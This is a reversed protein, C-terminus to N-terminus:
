QHWHQPIDENATTGHAMEGNADVKNAKHGDIGPADVVDPAERESISPSDEDMDKTAEHGDKIGSCTMNLTNNEVKIENVGATTGGDAPPEDNSLDGDWFTATVTYIRVMLAWLDVLMILARSVVSLHDLMSHAVTHLSPHYALSLTIM